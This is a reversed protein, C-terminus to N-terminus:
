DIPQLWDPLSVDSASSLGGYFPCPKAMREEEGRAGSSTLLLAKAASSEPQGSHTKAPPSLLEPYYITAPLGEGEWFGGGSRLSPHCLQHGTDVGPFTVVNSRQLFIVRGIMSSSRIKFKRWISRIM